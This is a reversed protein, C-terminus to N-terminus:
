ETYVKKSHLLKLQSKLKIILPLVSNSTAIMKAVYAPPAPPATAMGKALTELQKTLDELWKTTTDGKLVPENEKQSNVGLYIKKADLGVYDEGDLAVKKSNM